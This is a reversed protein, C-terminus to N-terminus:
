GMKVRTTGTHIWCCQILQQSRMCNSSICKICNIWTKYLYRSYHDTIHNSSICIICNIWAKYWYSNYYDTRYEFKYDIGLITALIECSKLACWCFVNFSPQFKPFSQGSTTGFRDQIHVIKHKTKNIKKNMYDTEFSDHLRNAWFRWKCQPLWIITGTCTFYPYFVTLIFWLSISVNHM